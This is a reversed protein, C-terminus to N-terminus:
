GYYKLLRMKGCKLTEAIENLSVDKEGSQELVLAFLASQLPSIGLVTSVDELPEKAKEFFLENLSNEKVLTIIKEFCDLLNKKNM